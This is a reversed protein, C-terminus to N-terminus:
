SKPEAGLGLQTLLQNVKPLAMVRTAGLVVAVAQGGIVTGDLHLTSVVDPVTSAVGLVLALGTRITARWPHRVQSPAAVTM